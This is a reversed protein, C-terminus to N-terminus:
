AIAPHPTVVNPCNRCGYAARSDGVRVADVGQSRGGPELRVANRDGAAGEGAESHWRRLLVAAAWPRHIRWKLADEQELALQEPRTRSAM